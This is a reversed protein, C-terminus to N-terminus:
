SVPPSLYLGRQDIYRRVLPDVGHLVPDAEVMTRRQALARRLDTSSIDLMPVSVVRAEWAEVEPGTWFGTARLATALGAPSNVDGRLMVVPEAKVLLDRAGRWRHFQAAQDSGILLKLGVRRAAGLRSLELGAREVTDITYSPQGGAGSQARNIEDTWIAARAVGALALRLMEIRDADSAAPGTEKLPSRAAPVYLFWTQDSGRDARRDIEERVRAPLEIHARHPPDFVGGVLLIRGVEGAAVASQLQAPLPTPAIM